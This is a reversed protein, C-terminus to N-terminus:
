NLMYYLIPILYVQTFVNYTPQRTFVSMALRSSTTRSECKSTNYVYMPDTNNPFFRPKENHYSILLTILRDIVLM